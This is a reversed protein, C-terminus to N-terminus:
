HKIAKTKRKEPNKGSLNLSHWMTSFLSHLTRGELKTHFTVIRQGCTLTQFSATFDTGNCNNFYKIKDHNGIYFQKINIGFKITESFLINQMRTVSRHKEHLSGIKHTHYIKKDSTLRSLLILQIQHQPKRLSDSTTAEPQVQKDSKWNAATSIHNCCLECSLVVKYVIKNWIKYM